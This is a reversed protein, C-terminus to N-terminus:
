GDTIVGEFDADGFITAVAFSVLVGDRDIIDSELDSIGLIMDDNLFTDEIMVPIDTSLYSQTLSLNGIKNFVDNGYQDDYILHVFRRTQLAKFISQAAAEIGDVKGIIRKNEFDMRYTSYINTEDELDDEEFPNVIIEDEDM